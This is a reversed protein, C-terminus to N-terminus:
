RPSPPPPMILGAKVHTQVRMGDRRLRQSRSLTVPKGKMDRRRSHRAWSDSIICQTFRFADIKDARVRTKICMEM